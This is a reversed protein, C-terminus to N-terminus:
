RNCLVTTSLHCDQRDLRQVRFADPLRQGGHPLSGAATPLALGPTARRVRARAARGHTSAARRPLRGRALAVACFIVPMAFIFRGYSASAASALFVVRAAASAAARGKRDARAALAVGGAAAPLHQDHLRVRLLDAYTRSVGRRRLSVVQRSAGTEVKSGPNCEEWPTAVAFLLSVLSAIRLFLTASMRDGGHAETEEPSTKV